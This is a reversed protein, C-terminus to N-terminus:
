QFCFYLEEYLCDVAYLIVLLWPISNSRLCFMDFQSDAENL